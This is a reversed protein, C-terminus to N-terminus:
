HFLSGCRSFTHLAKQPEAKLFLSRKNDYPELHYIRELNSNRFKYLYGWNVKDTKDHFYGLTKFIGAIAFDTFGAALLFNSFDFSGQLINEFNVAIGVAVGIGVFVPHKLRHALQELHYG